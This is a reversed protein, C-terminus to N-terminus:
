FPIPDSPDDPHAQAEQKARPQQPTVCELWGNFDVPLCEIKVARKGNQKEILAGCNIWRTKEEGTKPDNYTGNPVTLDYIKPM